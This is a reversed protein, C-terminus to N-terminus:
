IMSYSLSISCHYSDQQVPVTLYLLIVSLFTIFPSLMVAFLSWENIDDTPLKNFNWFYFGFVIIFIIGVIYIIIKLYDKEKKNNGKKM